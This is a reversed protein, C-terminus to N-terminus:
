PVRPMPQPTASKMRDPSWSSTEGVGPTTVTSDGSGGPAQSARQIIVGLTLLAALIAALILGAARRRKDTGLHAFSM